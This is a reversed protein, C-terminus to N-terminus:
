HGDRREWHQPILLVPEEITKFWPKPAYVLPSKSYSLYAAWWSFTSNAIVYGKATRMLEFTEASTLEGPVLFVYNSYQPPLYEQIEDPSDTYIWISTFRSTAMLEDICQAYYERTLLGFSEESKYDGRRIHVALVEEAESVKKLDIFLKSVHKPRVEMLSDYVQNPWFESQFYGVVVQAGEVKKLKFYGIGEGYVLTKYGRFYISCICSTLSSIFSKVPTWKEYFRPAVGMRLVYGTSKRVLWSGTKNRNVKVEKPLIFSEIEPEGLKNLRPKGIGIELLIDEKLEKAMSLGASLQFFQNGLGGTLSITIRERAM